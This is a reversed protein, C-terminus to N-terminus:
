DLIWAPNAEADAQSAPAPTAVTTSGSLAAPQGYGKVQDKSRIGTASLLGKLSNQLEREHRLLPNVVPGHPGDFFQPLLQMDVRVLQLRQITMSIEVLLLLDAECWRQPDHAWLRRYAARGTENLMDAGEIEPPDGPLQRQAAKILEAISDKRAKRPKQM